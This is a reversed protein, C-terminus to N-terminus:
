PTEHCFTTIRMRAFLIGIVGRPRACHKIFRARVRLGCNSTTERAMRIQTRVNPARAPFTARALFPPTTFIRKTYISLNEAPINASGILNCVSYDPM